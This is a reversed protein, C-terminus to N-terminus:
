YYMIYGRNPFFATDTVPSRLVEKENLKVIQTRAILQCHLQASAWAITQTEKGTNTFILICRIMEGGVFVDGGDIRVDLEVM